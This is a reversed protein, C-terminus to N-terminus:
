APGGDFFGDAGQAMAVQGWAISVAEPLNNWYAYYSTEEAAILDLPEGTACTTPWGAYGHTFRDRLTGRVDGRFQDGFNQALTPDQAPSVGYPGNQILYGTLYPVVRRWAEAFGIYQPTGPTFDANNGPADFDAALHLYQLATPFVRRAWQFRQVFDANSTDESPEWGYPVIIKLAAQWRPQAFIPELTEMQATTWNDPGIFSVVAFGAAWWNEILTLVFDANTRFDVPPYQGHYGPDIFPGMDVHTYGRARLATRAIALDGASYDECGTAIINDPQGPRPGFQVPGRTPWIAGRIARLQQPTWPRVPPVPPATAVLLTPLQYWTPSLPRPYADPIPTAWFDSVPALPISVPVGYWAFGPAAVGEQGLAEFFLNILTENAPFDPIGAHGTTGSADPTVPVIWKRGGGDHVRMQATHPAFPLDHFNFPRLPTM